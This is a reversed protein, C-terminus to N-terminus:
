YDRLDTPTLGVRYAQFAAAMLPHDPRCRAFAAMAKRTSATLKAPRVRIAAALLECGDNDDALLALLHDAQMASWDAAFAEAACTTGYHAKTGDQHLVAIYTSLNVRGCHACPGSYTDDTATITASNM